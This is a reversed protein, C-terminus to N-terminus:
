ECKDIYLHCERHYLALVFVQYTLTAVGMYCFNSLSVYDGDSKMQPMGLCELAASYLRHRGIFMEEDLGQSFVLNPSARAHMLDLTAAGPRWSM